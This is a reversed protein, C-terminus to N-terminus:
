GEEGTWYSVQSGLPLYAELTRAAKNGGPAAGALVGVKKSDPYVIVDPELMTSFALYRLPSGSENILQHACAPGAPLAVYDGAKLPVTEDGLRLTGSGELIFLAEENALHYHRPWSQKGPPLEFLSCGLKQGQAAAGLQKRRMAIRLGRTSESWPLDQANVVHPHAM